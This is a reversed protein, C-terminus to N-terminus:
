KDTSARWSGDRMREQFPTWRTSLRCQARQQITWSSIAHVFSSPRERRYIREASPDKVTGPIECLLLTFVRIDQITLQLYVHFWCNHSVCPLVAALLGNKAVTLVVMVVLGVPFRHDFAGSLLFYSERSFLGFAMAADMSFISALPLKPLLAHRQLDFIKVYFLSYLIGQCVLTM